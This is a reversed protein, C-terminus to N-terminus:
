GWFKIGFGNVKGSSDKVFLPWFEKLAYFQDDLQEVSRLLEGKDHRALFNNVAKQLAGCILDAIQISISDDDKLFNFAYIKKRLNNDSFTPLSNLYNIGKHKMTSQYDISMSLHEKDDAEDYFVIGFENQSLNRPFRELVLRCAELYASSVLVHNQVKLRFDRKIVIASLIKANHMSLIEAIRKNVKKRVSEDFRLRVEKLNVMQYEDMIERVMQELSIINDSDCFFGGVTNCLHAESGSEDLFLIKLSKKTVQNVM